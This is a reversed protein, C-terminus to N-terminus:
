RFALEPRLEVARGSVFTALVRTSALETPPSTLPDRDVVLFDESGTQLPEVFLRLAQEPGLAQDDALGQRDRAAAM